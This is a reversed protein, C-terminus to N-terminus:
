KKTDELETMKRGCGYGCWVKVRGQIETGVCEGCGCVFERMPPGENRKGM